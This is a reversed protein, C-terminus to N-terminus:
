IYVHIDEYFLRLRFSYGLDNCFFVGVELHGGPRFRFIYIYLGARIWDRELELYASTRLLAFLGDELHGGPRSFTGRIAGLFELCGSTRMGFFFVFVADELLEWSAFELHGRPRFRNARITGGWLELYSSTRPDFFVGDPPRTKLVGQQHSRTSANNQPVRM